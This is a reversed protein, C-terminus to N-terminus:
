FLLSIYTVVICWVSLVADCSTSFVFLNGGPGECNPNDDESLFAVKLLLFKELKYLKFPQMLISSSSGYIKHSKLNECHWTHRHSDEPNNYQTIQYNVLM